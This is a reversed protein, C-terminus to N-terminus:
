TRAPWRVSQRVPAPIPGLHCGEAEWVDEGGGDRRSPHPTVATLLIHQAHALNSTTAAVVMAADAAEGSAEGAIAGLDV